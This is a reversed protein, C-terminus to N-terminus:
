ARAQEVDAQELRMKKDAAQLAEVVEHLEGDLIEELRYLTLNVRHDTVRSQPFNYTRIKASRDGSGVQSRRTAAMKEEQERHARDLLRARLVKLAKSKNKHQSKEDQCTSVVGTPIHTIRVASDTTNVSQGGPGSSRFVDVRLDKPDIQVEVEEPESLVVVSAASTHIRGSAETEPVRQVRHVGSEFRLQGFVGDGELAFIIEKFGGVETPNSSMIEQHWGQKEAYRTYMRYLDAVFLSAEHGGTGARIEMLANGKDRPHPPVLFLKLQEELTTLTGELEEIEERALDALDEESSALLTKDQEIKQSVRQYKRAVEVIDALERYERVLQGYRERDSLTEPDALIEQLEAHRGLVQRIKTMM